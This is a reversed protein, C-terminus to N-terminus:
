LTHELRARGHGARDNTRRRSRHLYIFKRRSLDAPPASPRVPRGLRLGLSIVLGGLVVPLLLLLNWIMGVAVPLYFWGRLLPRWNDPSFAQIFYLGLMVASWGCIAIALFRPWPRRRRLLGICIGCFLFNLAVFVATIAVYLSSM